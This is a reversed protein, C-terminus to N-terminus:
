PVPDFGGTGGWPHCRLLRALAMRGGTWAGYRAIAEEAYRSCSPEFRCNRGLVPSLLLRYGNLAAGLVITM